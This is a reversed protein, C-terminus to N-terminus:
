QDGLRPTVPQRYPLRGRFSVNRLTTRDTVYTVARRERLHRSEKGVPDIILDFRMVM